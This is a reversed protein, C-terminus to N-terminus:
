ESVESEIMTYNTSISVPDDIDMSTFLANENENGLDYLVDPYFLYFCRYAIKCFPQHRSVM